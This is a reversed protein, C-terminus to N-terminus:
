GGVVYDQTSFDKGTTPLWEFKVVYATLDVGQNFINEVWSSYFQFFVVRETSDSLQLNYNSVIFLAGLFLLKLVIMAVKM